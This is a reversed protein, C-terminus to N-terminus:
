QELSFLMLYLSLKSPVVKQPLTFYFKTGQGVKSEVKIRGGM